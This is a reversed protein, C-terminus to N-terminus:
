RRDPPVLGNKLVDDAVNRGLKIGATLDFRWHVGLYIRSVANEQEAQSLTTFSRPSLPRTNGNNDQNIGNFEDSTFTFPIHDTRFFRRLVQFLASGLTAHGSVYSPFPPTFNPGRLNTAPAGLPTFQVDGLTAPNGDGAGTPGTGPDAERIATVPRWFQYLYKVHWCAITADAIAVNVLALLSAMDDINSRRQAAIQVAIQNYLRPPPGLPSGDYGWYIGAITQDATRSTPTTIGDRGLRRVENFAAAYETSNLAPPFPLPFQGASCIVFPTVQGWFAGLAIPVLSVPDQRWKGPQDSPIFEIGIRPEPIQSGDNARLALIAAAAQSGLSIGNLKAPGDPIQSLDQTLLEDLSAAQSPFLAVLTDHAAQAIAADVSTNSHAGTLASYCPHRRSIASVADLIAIHIIALARSTRTPGFQEGFIRLQGPTVPTHDLAIANLAVENWYFLRAVADSGPPMPHRGPVRRLQPSRMLRPGLADREGGRLAISDQASSWRALVLPLGGLTFVIARRNRSMHRLHLESGSTM